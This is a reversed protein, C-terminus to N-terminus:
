KILNKAFNVIKICEVAEKVDHVRLIDVGKTLAITNIVSTGNLAQIANIDLLKHIMSKRSVGALVPYKLCKFKELNNLIEYNHEITKGFGFGPDIILNDVGLNNLTKIKQQFYNIIDEVVNNYTPNKQMNKPTGLMHMIIYPVKNKAIVSFMNKDLDGSSIDNIIDAGNNISEEAVKARYTDISILTNPFHKRIEKLSPIIKSLEKKESIEDSGPRSSQAGIDIINAGEDIMKKTQILIKETDNYKGGDYFSNSALNLIGMIKSTSFYTKNQKRNM